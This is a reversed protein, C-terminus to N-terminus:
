ENLLDRVQEGREEAAIHSYAEKTTSLSKHRLLDQALGRDKRFVEDGIGRRAGHLKLYEGDIEVSADECLTQMQSRMGDTTIAPPVVDYERLVNDVDREDLLVDIEEADLDPGDADGLTDRAVRYKSPAHNTPFVPWEESPPDLMQHWRKLPTRAPRPVPAAEWEQAKGFVRLVM